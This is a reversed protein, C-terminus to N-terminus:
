HCRYYYRSKMWISCKSIKNYRETQKHQQATDQSITMIEDSSVDSETEMPVQELVQGQDVTVSAEITRRTIEEPKGMMDGVRIERMAETELTKIKSYMEIIIKDGM